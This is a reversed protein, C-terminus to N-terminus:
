RWIQFTVVARITSDRGKSLWSLGSVSKVVVVLFAIVWMLIEDTFGPWSGLLNLSLQQGLHFLVVMLLSGGTRIYLWTYLFALPVTGVVALVVEPPTMGFYVLSPVHWLGWVLGLFLSSFLAGYRALLGPLAFGRWGLEEALAGPVAFLIVAPLMLMAQAGYVLVLPSVVTFSHGLLTDIGKAAFFLGVEFCLAFAYWFINVRGSRLPRFLARVGAKGAIVAVLLVAVLGPTWRALGGLPSSPALPSDAGHLRAVAAPIWVAWTLSLTLVFFLFVQHRQIFKM